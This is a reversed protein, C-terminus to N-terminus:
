HKILHHVTRMHRGITDVRYNRYCKQCRVKGEPAPVCKRDKFPINNHRQSCGISGKTNPRAHVHAKYTSTPYIKNCFPCLTTINKVVKTKFHHLLIHRRLSTSQVIKMCKSCEKMSDGIKKASECLASVEKSVRKTSCSDEYKQDLNRRPTKKPRTNHKKSHSAINSKQKDNSAANKITPNLM